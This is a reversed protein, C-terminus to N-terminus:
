RRLRIKNGELILNLIQPSVRYVLKGRQKTMLITFDLLLPLVKKHVSVWIFIKTNTNVSKQQQIGTHMIAIM